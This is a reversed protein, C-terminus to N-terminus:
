LQSPSKCDLNSVSDHCELRPTDLSPSQAPPRLHWWAKRPSELPERWRLQGQRQGSSSSSKELELESDRRWQDKSRDEQLGAPWLWRSCLHAGGWCLRRIMEASIWKRLACGVDLHSTSSGSSLSKSFWSNSLSTCSCTSRAWYKSPQVLPWYHMFYVRLLILIGGTQSVKGGPWYLKEGQRCQPMLASQWCRAFFSHSSLHFCDNEVVECRRVKCLLRSWWSCLNRQRFPLFYNSALHTLMRNCPTFSHHQLTNGKTSAQSVSMRGMMTTM